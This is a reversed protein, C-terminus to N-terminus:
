VGFEDRYKRIDNIYISYQSNESLYLIIDDLNILAHAKIGYNNQIEQIASINGTGKEQRDISVIVGSPVGGHSLIIEISERISTGASIVDDLILVNGKLPHGIIQGGEGHNKIEKRNFAFKTNEFNEQALAISTANVIPIGKYSPGFIMDFNLSNKIIYNSYFRGLENLSKGENVSGLNFFYPSNRGAKTKFNGFKLIDTNITFDIFQKTFKDM